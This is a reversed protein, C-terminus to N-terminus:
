THKCHRAVAHHPRRQPLQRRRVGRELQLNYLKADEAADLKGLIPVPEKLKWFGQYGGGSFIIATPKPVGDSPERLLKLIRTREEDFDEDARPDVDVHLWTMAALDERNAKKTIIDSSRTSM